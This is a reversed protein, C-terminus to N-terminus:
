PAPLMRWKTGNWWEALARSGTTYDNKGVGRGSGGTALCAKVDWQGVLYSRTLSNTLEQRHGHPSHFSAVHRRDEHGAPGAREAALQRRPQTGGTV